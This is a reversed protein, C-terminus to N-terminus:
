HELEQAGAELRKDIIELAIMTEALIRQLMYFWGPWGDFLCGKAILVYAFVALPAPWAVLRLKDTASLKASDVSLLHLAEDRAYQQQSQFWRTLPKRDDHYIKSALALVSGNIVVRHGHGENKYIAHDKQYLVVRPPYLTGRLPHGYIRYVFSARYGVTDSVPSLAEMERIIEDSLQYDADLSLVWRSLIMSLGFNCQSAFDTFPRHFLEVQPYSRLLEITGDTSGSDIVVIRHAWLLRDFTRLINPAENFTIVLPTIQDLL